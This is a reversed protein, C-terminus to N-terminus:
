GYLSSGLLDLSMGMEIYQEVNVSLGIPCGIKADVIIHLRFVKVVEFLQLLHIGHFLDLLVIRCYADSISVYGYSSPCSKVDAYARQIPFMYILLGNVSVNVDGQLRAYIHHTVVVVIM